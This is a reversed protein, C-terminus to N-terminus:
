AKELMFSFTSGVGETSRVKISQDHAEIIHKVIALGLGSGGINRARSKDVRYFREFLRPLHKEDIGLGDDAVEVLVNKKDIDHFRVTTTGGEEGYSISNSVLNTIVQAIKGKDAKVKIPDFSESFKFKINKDEAKKELEGFITKTLAVVDFTSLKLNFQDFEYKSIQDLDELIASIRDVGNLARELFERNVNEDELGGELLTLVYGQISFVPTKLEHALNGLFERRFNEQDTLEKIQEKQRMSWKATDEELKTFVDESISTTFDEDKFKKNSIFRYLTRIREGLYKQFIIAFVAFSVGAALLPILVLSTIGFDSSTTMEFLLLVAFILLGLLFSGLAIAQIPHKIKM